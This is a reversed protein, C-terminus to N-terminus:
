IPESTANIRWRRWPDDWDQLKLSRPEPKILLLVLQLSLRACSAGPLNTRDGKMTKVVKISPQKGPSSIWPIFRLGNCLIRSCFESPTNWTLKNSFLGCFTFCDNFMICHKLYTLFTTYFCSLVICRFYFWVYVLLSWQLEGLQRELLM